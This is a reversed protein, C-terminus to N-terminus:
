PSRQVFRSSAVACRSHCVPTQQRCLFAHFSCFMAEINVVRLRPRSTGRASVAFSTGHATATVARRTWTELYCSLSPELSLNLKHPPLGSLTLSNLYETPYVPQHDVEASFYTVTDGPLMELVCNNTSDVMQNMVPQTSM